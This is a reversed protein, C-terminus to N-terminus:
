LQCRAVIRLFRTFVGRVGHARCRLVRLMSDMCREPHIARTAAPATAKLAHAAFTSTVVWRASGIRTSSGVSVSGGTGEAPPGVTSGVGVSGPVVAVM